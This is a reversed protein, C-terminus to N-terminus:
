RSIIEDLFQEKSSIQSALVVFVCRIGGALLKVGGGFGM